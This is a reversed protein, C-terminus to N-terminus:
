SQWVTRGLQRDRANPACASSAFIASTTFASSKLMKLSSSLRLKAQYSYQLLTGISVNM